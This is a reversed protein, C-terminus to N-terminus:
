NEYVGRNYFYTVNGVWFRNLAREAPRLSKGKTPCYRAGLFAIFAIRHRDPLKLWDGHARKVTNLCAQRPTTHKYKTMIGYPHERSNEARGIADVLRNFDIAESALIPSCGSLWVALLIALLSKYLM